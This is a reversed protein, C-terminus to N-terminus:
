CCHVHHHSPRPAIAIRRHAHHHSPRVAELTFLRVTLLILSVLFTALHLYHVRKGFRSWKDRLLKRVQRSSSLLDQRRYLVLLRLVSPLNDNRSELLSDLQHLPYVIERV